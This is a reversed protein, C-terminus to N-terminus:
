AAPAIVALARRRLSFSLPSPMLHEEGDILVRLAGAAATVEIEQGDLRRLAPDRVRGTALRWALRLLGWATRQQLVYACLRGGDLVTRGFSRGAADDLAGVTITLSSTRVATARGDVRLVMRRPRDRRLVRWAARALRLWPGLGAGHRRARERHHGIRAPTGLMCACTFAHDGVQGLDIRRVQGRTLVEAAAPLDGVPLGLDHALLNMTGAPLIGLARDTGALIGAACAITGDGGAVVVAQAAEAAMRIRAPLAGDPVDRVECGAAALRAHLGALGNAGALLGGARDNIVLALTLPERLGTTM